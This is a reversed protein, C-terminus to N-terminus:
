NTRLLKGPKTVICKSREDSIKQVIERLETMARHVRVKVAGVDIDLLSAIQEYKLEQFRALILLERKDEPLRRLARELLQSRERAEIYSDPAPPGPSHAGETDGASLPTEERQSKFRDIRVTRAIRYMWGRFESDPRFTKRYKLMRLFVEQVLDESSAPTSGLRFFFEYLRQHYRDFLVGFLEVDGDRVALM